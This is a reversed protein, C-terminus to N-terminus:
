EYDSELNDFTDEVNIERIFMSSPMIKTNQMKMEINLARSYAKEFFDLSKGKTSHNLIIQRM